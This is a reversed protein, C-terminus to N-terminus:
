RYRRVLLFGVTIGLIGVVGAVTPPAPIPQKFFAFGGGVLLGFLLATVCERIM